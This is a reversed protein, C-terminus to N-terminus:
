RAYSWILIWILHRRVIVCIVIRIFQNPPCNKPYDFAEEDGEVEEPYQIIMNLKVDKIVNNIRQNHGVFRRLDIPKIYMYKFVQLLIEDSLIELRSPISSASGDM